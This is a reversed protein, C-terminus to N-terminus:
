TELSTWISKGLVALNVTDFNVDFQSGSHANQRRVAGYHIDQRFSTSGGRCREISLPTPHLIHGEECLM